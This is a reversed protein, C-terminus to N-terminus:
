WYMKAKKADKANPKRWGKAGPNISVMGVEQEPGPPFYIGDWPLFCIEIIRFKQQDIKTRERMRLSYVVVLVPFVAAMALVAVDGFVGTGGLFLDAGGLAMYAAALALLIAGAFLKVYRRDSEGIRQAARELEDIREAAARANAADEEPLSELFTELDINIREM